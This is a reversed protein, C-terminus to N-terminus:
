SDDGDEGGLDYVRYQQRNQSLMCLVRRGKRGNVEIQVPVFVGDSCTHRLNRSQLTDTSPTM